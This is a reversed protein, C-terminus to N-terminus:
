FSKISEKIWDLYDKNAGIIPLAVIEPVDYSHLRKVTKVIDNFFKLETKAALLIENAFEIKNKWWFCSNIGKVINVCAVLKEELLKYSIKKAEKQTPVTIFIIIFSSKKM